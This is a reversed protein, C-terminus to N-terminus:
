IVRLLPHLVRDDLGVARRVRARQEGVPPQWERRLQEWVMEIVAMSRQDPHYPSDVLGTAPNPMAGVFSYPNEQDWMLYVNRINRGTGHHVFPLEDRDAVLWREREAANLRMKFCIDAAIEANSLYKADAPPRRAFLRRLWKMM